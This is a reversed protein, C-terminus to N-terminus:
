DGFIDNFRSHGHTPDTTTHWGYRHALRRAEGTLEERLEIPELVECNAGWGRIWPKIDTTDAVDFAVLVCGPNDEDPIIQQSLHWQSEQVRRAVEPYFRLVVRVTDEGYYIGWANRLLELGPFDDPIAYERTHLLRIQRIREIKLTRLSASATSYGIVYVGFGWPSPEVLYPHLTTRFPAGRYPEYIIDAARRYAYSQLVRRLVDDYGPQQPRQALEKAAQILSRDFGADEGLLEALKVLLNEMLDTRRDSGKVFLRLALYLAGADEVCLDLKRLVREDYPTAFWLADEKFVLSRMELEHLYNDLTRRELALAEGLEQSRIGDPTRRLMSMVRDLRAAKQTETIRSVNM